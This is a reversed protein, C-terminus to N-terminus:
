NVEEYRIHCSELNRVWRFYIKGAKQAMTELAKFATKEPGISWIDKGKTELLTGITHMM